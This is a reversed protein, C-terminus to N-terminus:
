SNFMRLHFHAPVTNNFKHITRIRNGTGAFNDYFSRDARNAATFHADVPFCPHVAITSMFRDTRNGSKAFAVNRQFDPLPDPDARHGATAIGVTRLTSRSAIGPAWFVLSVAAHMRFFENDGGVGTMYKRVIQRPIRGHQDTAIAETNRIVGRGSDRRICLDDRDKTDSRDTQAVDEHLFIEASRQDRHIFGLEAQILGFM